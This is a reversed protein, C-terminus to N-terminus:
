DHSIIETILQASPAHSGWNAPAISVTLSLSVDFCGSLLEPLMESLVNNSVPPRIGSCWRQPLVADSVLHVMEREGDGERDGDTGTEMQMAM